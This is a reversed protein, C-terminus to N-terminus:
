FSDIISSKAFWRRIAEVQFHYYGNDEEILERRVLRQLTAALGSPDFLSQRLEPVNVGHASGNRALHRLIVLGLEDVQHLEIDAFFQSGRTLMAPVAAEVDALVAHRRQKPAQENKLNIIESCLLQILYPHGSTLHLVHQSAAVDYLLAFEKVPQEILQRAEQEQLYSLHLVQANILFHSWRQFEGLTHSGALLLKFNTRHQIIHRLTGLIAQEGLRKTNIADDLAEFEDLTLLITPRGQIATIAEIEDLWQDFITFPNNALAPLPLTPLSLAQEAASKVMARALAHLFGAHDSALAVPGQLDVYLPVIRQPLLRRLNYLLSTKGMRRQGYLLLPPHLDHRLLAEIRVSVERRGVFLEQQRSLPVGVIYPDQIEQEEETLRTLNAVEQRIITQWHQAIPMFRATYPESSRALELLLSDLLDEVERLVLRRHFRGTQNLGAAVDESRKRLSNFLASAPGVLESGGLWQQMQAIEDVTTCAALRRAAIEIQAAVAAWRQRSVSIQDLMQQGQFTDREYFLVLHQDLRYLPLYQLEDWFAANWALANRKGLSEEEDLRLVLANWALELPYFLLPRWWRLTFGLMVFLAALNFNPWFLFYQNVRELMYFSALGALAGGVAAAWPSFIRLVALYTLAFFGFYIAILASTYIWLLLDGGVADGYVAGPNAYTLWLLLFGSLGAVIGRGWHPSRGTVALGIILGPVSAAMLGIGPDPLLGGMRVRNLGVMLGIVALFITISVLLGAMFSGTQRVLSRATAYATINGNVHVVLASIGGLLAGYRVGWFLDVLLLPAGSWALALAAPAFVALVIGAATSIAAGFVLAVGYGLSVYLLTTPLLRDLVWLVLLLGTTLLLPMVVYGALLLKQLKPTRWHQYSLEALCFHVPLKPDLATIYRQWGSPRLLLWTLLQGGARLPNNVLTNNM